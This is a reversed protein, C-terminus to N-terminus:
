SIFTREFIYVDNNDVIDLIAIVRKRRCMDCYINEKEHMSRISADWILWNYLPNPLRLIIAQGLQNAYLRDNETRKIQSCLRWRM